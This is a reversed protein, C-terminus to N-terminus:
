LDNFDRLIPPGLLGAVEFCFSNSNSSSDSEDEESCFCPAPDDFFFCCKCLSLLSNSSTDVTKLLELIKFSTNSGRWCFFSRRPDHFFFLLFFLLFWFPLLWIAISKKMEKRKKRWFTANLSQNYISTVPAMWTYLFYQFFLSRTKLFYIVQLVSPNWNRTVNEDIM